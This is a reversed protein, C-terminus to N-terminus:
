HQVQVRLFRQPHAPDSTLYLDQVQVSRTAGSGSETVTVGGVLATFASGNVSQALDSWGATLSDTGQVILTIDNNALTRTFTIALRGGPTSTQWLTPAPTLPNGALAYELLNVLGDFEPDALNAATGTDTAAPGFFSQRWLELPPVVTDFVLTTGGVIKFVGTVGGALNTATFNSAAFDTSGFTALTYVNGLAGGGGFDFAFTGTGRKSLAGSGLAVRDTSAGLDFRAIGGAQWTLGTATLTAATSDGPSLRGGSELLINTVSGAGALTAGNMVQVAIASSASGSVVLTGAQAIITGALTNAGSLELTGAGTKLLDNHLTGGVIGSLVARDATSVVNDDM